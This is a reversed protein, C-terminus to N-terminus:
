SDNMAIALGELVVIVRLKCSACCCGDEYDYISEQPKHLIIYAFPRDKFAREDCVRSLNKSSISLNEKIGHLFSIITSDQKSQGTHLSTGLM